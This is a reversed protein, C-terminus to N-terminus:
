RVHVSSLCTQKMGRQPFLPLCLSSVITAHAVAGCVSVRQQVLWRKIKVAPSQQGWMACGQMIRQLKSVSFDQLECVAPSAKMDLSFFWNFRPARDEFKEQYNQGDAVRLCSSDRLSQAESLSVSEHTLSNRSVRQLGAWEQYCGEHVFMCM